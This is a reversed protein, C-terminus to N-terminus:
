FLEERLQELRVRVQNNDPELRLSEEWASEALELEGLQYNSNVLTAITFGLHIKDIFLKLTLRHSL